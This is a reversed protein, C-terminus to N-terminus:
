PTSCGYDSLLMALDALDVDGDGDLDAAPNWNPDGPRSGYAALLAALDALDTDGDGDVDGPCPQPCPNPDCDTGVGLFHGPGIMFSLDLSEGTLPDILERWQIVNPDQGPVWMGWVADDNWHDQSTKWGWIGGETTVQIDLWYVNGEEQVFAIQEPIEIDYQFWLQHNNPDVMGAAPDFWGQWSVPENGPPGPPEEWSWLLVGPMSYGTPSEEAPIDAHISLRLTQIQGVQDDQWSGWFRVHTLPGSWTCLFDDALVLPRTALVDWGTPDPLQPYHMKHCEAETLEECHGDPFCCAGTEAPLCEHLITGSIVYSDGRVDVSVWSPCYPLVMEFEYHGPEAIYIPPEPARRIFSDDFPPSDPETWEPTTWNVVVELWGEWPCPFEVDFEIRVLKERELDFENPWWMNWWGSPYYIWEGPADPYPWGNGGGQGVRGDFYYDAPRCQVTLDGVGANTSYGGVEILYQRGEEVWVLCRSQLTSPDGPCCHDDNCCLMPGVPDCECGDYVAIKTDYQSGCTDVSLMGTCSATYCYWINPGTMCQGPGDFTAHTTDFPLDVVDGIPEADVCDDNPPPQAELCEHYIIGSLVFMEGRVDVSVWAPCYPLMMEFEYHGPDMIYIPPDPARVIFVEDTPPAAPDVWQPTTWNLVFEMWGTGDPFDVDFEVRVLKRRDLDFENPWWMNWWDTEPYYIWEGNWGTGGMDGTISDFYYDVCETVDLVYNGCDGGYGDV